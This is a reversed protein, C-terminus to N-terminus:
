DIISDPSGVWNDKHISIDCNDYSTNWGRTANTVEFLRRAKAQFDPTHAGALSVPYSEQLNATDGNARNTIIITYPVANIM